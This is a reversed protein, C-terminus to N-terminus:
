AEETLFPVTAICPLNGAASLGATCTGDERGGM